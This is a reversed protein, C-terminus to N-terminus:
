KRLGESMAIKARHKEGLERAAESCPIEIVPLEM